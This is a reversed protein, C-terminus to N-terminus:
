SDNSRGEWEKLTQYKAEYIFKKDEGISNRFSAYVAEGESNHHDAEGVLFRSGTMAVPPVCGLMDFYMESTTPIWETPKSKMAEWLEDWELPKMIKKYIGIDKPLILKM